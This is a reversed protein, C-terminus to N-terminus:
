SLLPFRRTFILTQEANHTEDTLPEGPFNRRGTNSLIQDQGTIYYIHDSVLYIDTYSILHEFYIARPQSVPLTYYILLKVVASLSNSTTVRLCCTLKVMLAKFMMWIRTTFQRIKLLVKLSQKQSYPSHRQCNM